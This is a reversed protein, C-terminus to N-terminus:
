KGGYVFSLLVHGAVTVVQSPTLTVSQGPGTGSVSAAVLISFQGASTLAQIESQTINLTDTSAGVAFNLVKAPIVDTAGQKFSVSGSGSATFPNQIDLRLEAGQLNSQMDSGIGSWDVSVSDSQISQSALQVTVGALSVTDTLTTVQFSSTTDITVPDGQPVTVTAVVNVAGLIPNSGLSINRTLASGSPLSDSGGDVSDRAIVTGSSDSIVTVISGIKGVGPRLVDFGLGNDLRYSLSLGGPTISYVQSPLSDSHTLTITFAPVSDVTGNVAGCGPCMQGLSRRVSDRKVTTIFVGGVTDVSAPLFQAVGITDAKIPLIWTNPIIPLSTPLDNCAVAASLGLALALSLSRRDIM